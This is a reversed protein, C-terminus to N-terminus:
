FSMANILEVNMKIGSPILEPFLDVNIYFAYFFFVALM